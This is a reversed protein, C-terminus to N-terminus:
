MYRGFYSGGPELVDVGMCRLLLMSISKFIWAVRELQLVVYTKCTLLKLQEQM